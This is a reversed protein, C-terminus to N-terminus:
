TWLYKEDFSVCYRKLFLEYEEKFSIKKHHTHQNQIYKTLATINSQGISFAGYGNQWAFKEYYRGNTKIWKSSGKKLEEVLKSLSIAKPLTLLIHVHDEIGGIKHVISKYSRATAALYHYLNQEIESRIFPRRDKTSFIVHTLLNTLSQAM